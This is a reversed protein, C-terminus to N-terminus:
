RINFHILFYYCRNKNHCFFAFNPFIYFLWLILSNLCFVEVYNFFALDWFSQNLFNPFPPLHCDFHYQFSSQRKLLKRYWDIRFGHCSSSLFLCDFWPRPDHLADNKFSLNYCIAVVSLIWLCQLAISFINLNVMMFFTM